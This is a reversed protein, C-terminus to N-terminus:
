AFMVEPLKDRMFDRIEEVDDKILSNVTELTLNEVFDLLAKKTMRIEIPCQCAISGDLADLMPSNFFLIRGGAEDVEIVAGDVAHIRCHSVDYQVKKEAELNKERNEQEM